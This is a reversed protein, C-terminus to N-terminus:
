DEKKTKSISVIKGKFSAIISPILEASVFGGLVASFILFSDWVQVAMAPNNSDILRDCIWITGLLSVPITSLYGLRKSSMEGSPGQLFQLLKNIFILFNKM